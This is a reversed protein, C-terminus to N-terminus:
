LGADWAHVLCGVGAEVVPPGADHEGEGGQEERAREGVEAPRPEALRKGEVEGEQEGIPESFSGRPPSCSSRRIPRLSGEGPPPSDPPRVALRNGRLARVSALRRRPGTM